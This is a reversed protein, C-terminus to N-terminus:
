SFHFLHHSMYQCRERCNVQNQDGAATLGHESSSRLDKRIINTHGDRGSDARQVEAASFAVLDKCLDAVTM